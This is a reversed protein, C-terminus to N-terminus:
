ASAGAKTETVLRMHDALADRWPRLTVGLAAASNNALTSRV